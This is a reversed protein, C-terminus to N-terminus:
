PFAAQETGVGAWAKAAGCRFGLVGLVSGSREPRTNPDWAQGSVDLYKQGGGTVKIQSSINPIGSSIVLVTTAVARRTEIRPGRRGSLVPQEMLVGTVDGEGGRTVSVDSLLISRLLCHPLLSRIGICSAVGQRQREEGSSPFSDVNEQQLLQPLPHKGGAACASQLLCLLQLTLSWWGGSSPCPPEATGFTRQVSM